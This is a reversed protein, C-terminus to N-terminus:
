SRDLSCRDSAAARATRASLGNTEGIVEADEKDGGRRTVTTAQGAPRRASMGSALLWALGAAVGVDGPSFVGALPWGAPVVFRDSIAWFPIQDRPLVIDKSIVYPRADPGPLESPVPRGAAQLAEPTVPMLGGHPLTALVNLFVGLGILWAGPLRRNLGLVVLVGLYSVLFVAGAATLPWEPDPLLRKAAVQQVLLALVLLWGLRLRLGTLNTLRGGRWLGVGIGAVVGALLILM